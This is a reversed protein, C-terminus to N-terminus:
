RRVSRPRSRRKRRPHRDPARPPRWESCGSRELQRSPRSGCDPIRNCDARYRSFSGPPRSPSRRHRRCPLQRGHDHAGRRGRLKGVGPQSGLDRTRATEPRRRRVPRNRVTRRGDSPGRPHGGERREVDPFLSGPDHPVYNLEGPDGPEGGRDLRARKPKTVYPV